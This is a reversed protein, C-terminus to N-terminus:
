KKKMNTTTSIDFQFIRFMEIKRENIYKQARQPLLRSVGFFNFPLSKKDLPVLKAKFAM